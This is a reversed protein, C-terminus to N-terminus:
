VAIPAKIPPHSDYGEFAIDEFRFKDIDTIAPNLKLTPLPRPERALQEKAQTLQNLYLHADGMTHVFIGPKLDCVQAIMCTLLSYSAINFPIGLFVDASRQYLQCCLRKDNTVYFQFLTHCM